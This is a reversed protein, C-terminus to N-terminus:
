VELPRLAEAQDQQESTMRLRHGHQALADLVAQAQAGPAQQRDNRTRWFFRRHEGLGNQRKRGSRGRTRDPAFDPLVRGLCRPLLRALLQQV